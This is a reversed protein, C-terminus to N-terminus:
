TCIQIGSSLCLAKTEGKTLESANDLRLKSIKYGFPAFHNESLEKYRRFVEHFQGRDHLLIANSKATHSCLFHAAYIEGQLSPSTINGSIDVHVEQIPRSARQDIPRIPARKPKAEICAQCFISDLTKRSFRKISPDQEM